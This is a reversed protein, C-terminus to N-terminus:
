KRMKSQGRILIVAFKKVTKGICNFLSIDRCSKAKGYDHKWLKPITIGKAIKWKSTPYTIDSMLVYVEM